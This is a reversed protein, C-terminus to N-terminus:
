ELDEFPGAEDCGYALQRRGHEALQDLADAEFVGALQDRERRRRLEFADKVVIEPAGISRGAVFREPRLPERKPQAHHQLRSLVDQHPPEALKGLIQQRQRDM